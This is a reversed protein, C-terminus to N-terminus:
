HCFPQLSLPKLPLLQNQSSGSPLGMFSVVILNPRISNALYDPCFFIAIRFLPRLCLCSICFELHRELATILGTPRPVSFKPFIVWTFSLSRLSLNLQSKIIYSCFFSNILVGLAYIITPCLYM